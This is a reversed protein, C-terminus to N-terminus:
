GNFTRHPKHDGHWQQLSATSRGNKIEILAFTLKYSNGEGLGRFDMNIMKTWTGTNLYSRGDSYTKHMPLHTHGFIVTHHDGKTDLVYRAADQLDQLFTQTEQQIIRATVALRSRRTPSYVFRTKIFYYCSTVMFRLTFLTDTFLGWFIMAKVPRVKDVYDREWKFRNIIKLVYISGWPINLVPEPLGDSILPKNYNLLHVAEYNNGHEIYIGGEVEIHPQEHNVRVKKSPYAGEPDITKVFHEQLKPFFLDADHNGINYTITKGEQKVFERFANMVKPHGRMICELKYLAFQETIVEEFQGQYPVNLFDFFDGNIILEVDMGNGYRGTSFYQVFEVMEDDFYFDEHPNRTSEFQLGASLHCDSIVVKVKDPKVEKSHGEHFHNDFVGDLPLL